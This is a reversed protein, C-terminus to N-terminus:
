EHNQRITDYGSKYEIQIQYKSSGIQYNPVIVESNTITIPELVGNDGVLYVSPSQFLEESLWIMESQPM